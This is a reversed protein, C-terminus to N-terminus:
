RGELAPRIAAAVRGMESALRGREIWSKVKRQNLEVEIGVYRSEPHLKRLDTTLGDDTGRYPQNARVRLDPFASSLRRDLARAFGVETPRAPDFLLGIDCDRVEGRFVPAFSHISLHIATGHKATSAVHAAVTRRYPTYHERVIAQRQEEPLAQIRACHLSPAGLSRNLDVVLRSIEAYFLPAELEAALLRAAPLAGVDFGRHSALLSSRGFLPRLPAPVQNGGHECSFFLIPRVRTV